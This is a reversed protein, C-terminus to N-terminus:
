ILHATDVHRSVLKANTTRILLSDMQVPISVLIIIFFSIPKVLLAPPLQYVARVALLAAYHAYVPYPSTTPPVPQRAHTIQISLTPPSALSASLRVPATSANTPVYSAPPTPDTIHTPVLPLVLHITSSPLHVAPQVLLPPEQATSVLQLIM